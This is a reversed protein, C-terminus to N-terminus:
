GNNLELGNSYYHKKTDIIEMDRSKNVLPSHIDFM